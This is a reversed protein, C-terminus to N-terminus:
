STEMLRYLIQGLKNNEKEIDYENEIKKRGALSMQAWLEPHSILTDIQQALANIDREPVLFGSYNHKILEPIGSHYTSIVPLGIAMAEKLVTPLGEQDGNKATISPLIFIHADDLKAALEEHTHWGLLTINKEVHLNTILKQYTQKHPGDGILIYELNPYTPILKAIAHIAYEIGKKEVFRTTTIIKIPTNNSLNNPIIRQKYPFQERDIGTDHVIIKKPDCGLTELRSKFYNCVPLFLDGVTFLHDYIHPNEKICRSLDYGRFCTALKAQIGYKKLSALKIGETGFQCLIIDFSNIDQPLQAYHTKQLLNHKSILDSQYPPGQYFAFIHVDHGRNILGAIQNLVFTESAAPFQSVVVLIKLTKKEQLFKNQATITNFNFCLFLCFLRLFFLFSFM